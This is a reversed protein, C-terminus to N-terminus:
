YPVSGEANWLMQFTFQQPLGAFRRFETLCFFRVLVLPIIELYIRHEFSYPASGCGIDNQHNREKKREGNCLIHAPMGCLLSM